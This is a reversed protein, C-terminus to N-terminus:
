IKRSQPNQSQFLHRRLGLLRSFVPHAYFRARRTSATMAKKKSLINQGLHAQLIFTSFTGFNEVHIANNKILEESLFNIIEDVGDQVLGRDVLRDLKQYIITALENKGIKEM